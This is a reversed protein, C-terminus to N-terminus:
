RTLIAHSKYYFEKKKKNNKDTDFANWTKEQSRMDQGIAKM